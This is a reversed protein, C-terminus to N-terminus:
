REKIQEKTLVMQALQVEEKKLHSQRKLYGEQNFVALLIMADSSMKGPKPTLFLVTEGNETTTLFKYGNKEYRTQKEDNDLFKVIIFSIILWFVVLGSMFWGNISEVLMLLFLLFGVFGGLVFYHLRREKSLFFLETM